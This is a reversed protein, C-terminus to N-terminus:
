RGYMDLLVRYFGIRRLKELIYVRKRDQAIRHVDHQQVQLYVTAAEHRDLRVRCGAFGMEELISEARAVLDIRQETIEIGSPIRTALCSSSPRDWTNLGTERSLARVDEKSLGADALPTGVGLERLARLGPRDSQMDDINTGDILTTIGLEAARALFLRYVRSKCVYCRDDPNSVFEKWAFPDIDVFQHFVKGQLSHAAFWSSVGDLEHPKLLCSRSTFAAINDPGLVKIACSLLLSSDAGGSFAVAVRSYKELVQCLQKEKERIQM